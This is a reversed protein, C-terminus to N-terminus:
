WWHLTLWHSAKGGQWCDSDSDSCKKSIQVVRDGLTVRHWWWHLTLWPSAGLAGFAWPSPSCSIPISVLYVPSMIRRNKLKHYQPFLILIISFWCSYALFDAYINYGEWHGRGLKWHGRMLSLLAKVRWCQIEASRFIWLILSWQIPTPFQCPGLVVLVLTLKLYM